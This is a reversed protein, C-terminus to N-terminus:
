LFGSAATDLFYSSWRQLYISGRYSTQGGLECLMSVIDEVDVGIDGLRAQSLHPGSM